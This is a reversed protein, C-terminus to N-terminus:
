TQTHTHTHTHIHIHIITTQDHSSERQESLQSGAGRREQSWWKRARKLVSFKNRVTLLARATQTQKTNAMDRLATTQLERTQKVQVCSNDVRARVTCVSTYHNICAYISTEKRLHHPANPTHPM